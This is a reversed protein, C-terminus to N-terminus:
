EDRKFLQKIIQNAGTSSAGSVLGIMLAVYINDANFLSNPYFLHIVVGLAGGILTLFVPIIKYAEQHKKFLVKYLEGLLYCCVVILPVSAYEM